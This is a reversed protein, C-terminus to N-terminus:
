CSAPHATLVLWCGGPITICSMTLALHTLATLSTLRDTPSLKMSHMPPQEEDILSGFGELSLSQLSSPLRMLLLPYMTGYVDNRMDVRLETLSTLHTLFPLMTNHLESCDPDSLSDRLTPIYNWEFSLKQLQSQATFSTATQRALHESLFLAKCAALPDFMSTRPGEKFTPWQSDQHDDWIAPRTLTLCDILARSRLFATWQDDPSSSTAHLHLDGISSSNVIKRWASCTCAASCNDLANIQLEFARRLVEVPAASWSSVTQMGQMYCISSHKTVHQADTTALSSCCLRAGTRPSHM